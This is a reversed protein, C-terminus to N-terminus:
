IAHLHLFSRVANRGSKKAQYMAQDAAARLADLTHGHNPCVAVGVSCSIRLLGKSTEIPETLTVRLKEAIKIADEVSSVTELLVTFEDGGHRAVTDCARLASAMRKAGVKLVQDGIEHGYTDNIEKFLDLDVLLLAFPSSTREWLQQAMSFRDAFLYRNPLDTLIDHTALYASREHADNALEATRLRKFMLVPVAFLTTLYLGLIAINEQTLLDAWRIQQEFNLTMPQMENGIVFQKHLMPLWRSELWSALRAPKDFVPSDPVASSKLRISVGVHAGSERPISANLLSDTRTLLLAMMTDGFFNAGGASTAQEPRNVEQLLIFANGGEVMTFVPSVVPKANRKALALTHFLYDISELSLGYVGRAEPLAPYMFLIPWTETMEPQQRPAKHALSPYDKIAFDPRWTKKLLTEFAAQDTTPVRRAVELMYIHPYASLIAAAYRTVADADSKDVALLFAAFGALVAENADLKNGIGAAVHQAYDELGAGLRQIEMRTLVHAIFAMLALWVAFFLAFKELYKKM